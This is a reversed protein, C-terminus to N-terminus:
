SGGAPAAAGASAAQASPPVNHNLHFVNDPDWRDKLATLRALKVPSYARRVGAAGDDSLANVYVGSAHEAIAAGCRRTAAIRAADEAPDVWRAATVAEVLTDRHSFASADDPVDAIAGGYAQISVGPLLGDSGDGAGGALVVDIAEDTVEQLFSGKWYRRSQHGQPSDLMTQLELYSMPEVREAAARGLAAAFGPLYAQGEAPDGVHVFGLVVAGDVVDATLTVARPAAPLLDRWARFAAAAAAPPYRLEVLLARTGVPHLRFEFETVVGFNGGGGRLGWFLEPHEDASVRVVDGTATVV